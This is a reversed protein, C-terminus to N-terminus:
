KRRAGLMFCHGYREGLRVSDMVQEWDREMVSLTAKNNEGCGGEDGERM